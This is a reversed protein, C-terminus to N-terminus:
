GLKIMSRIMEAAESSREPLHQLDLYTQIPSVCDIGGVNRAGQFVGPDNPQIFWINTGSDVQRFHIQDMIEDDPMSQVYITVLRYQAFQHYQWASALGTAAYDFSYTRFTSMINELLEGSSRSVVHGKKILHDDFSYSKSWAELLMESNAPSIAGDRERIILSAEELRRLIKSVYGKSLGTGDILSQSDWNSTPEQLLLRTIRAASPAFINKPRGRDAFQNRYASVNIHLGKAHILANGSLDMWFLGAHKCMAKGVEGMYPVVLLRLSPKSLPDSRNQLAHIAAGITETTSKSKYEIFFYYSLVAERRTFITAFERQQRNAPLHLPKELWELPLNTLESLTKLIKPEVELFRM